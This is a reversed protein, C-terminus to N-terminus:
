PQRASTAEERNGRQRPRQASTAEVSVRGGNFAVNRQRPRRTGAVNASVHGGRRQWGVPGQWSEEGCRREELDGGGVRVNRLIEM